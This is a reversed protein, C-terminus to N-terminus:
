WRDGWRWRRPDAGIQELQAEAVSQGSASGDQTAIIHILFLHDSAAGSLCWVSQCGEVPVAAMDQLQRLLEVRHAAWEFEENDAARLWAQLALEPSEGSAQHVYTGGLFELVFTYRTKKGRM